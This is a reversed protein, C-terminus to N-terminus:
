LPRTVLVISRAGGEASGGVAKVYDWPDFYDHNVPYGGSAAVVLTYATGDEKRLPVYTSGDDSVQFTMATSTLAAPTRVAVVTSGQLDAAASVTAGNAIAVTVPTTPDSIAM